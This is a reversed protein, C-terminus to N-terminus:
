APKGNTNLLEHAKELEERIALRNPCKTECEGCQTCADARQEPKLRGYRKRSSEELGFLRVHTAMQFIWRILVGQACPMCYECETCFKRSREYLGRAREELTARQEPTLPGANALAVGNEVDSIREFGSIATTIHPHDFLFRLALAWCALGSGPLLNCITESEHGLV